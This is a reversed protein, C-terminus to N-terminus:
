MLFEFEFGYHDYSHLRHAARPVGPDRGQINQAIDNRVDGFFFFLHFLLRALEESSEVSGPYVERREFHARLAVSDRNFVAVGFRHRHFEFRFSLRPPFEPLM